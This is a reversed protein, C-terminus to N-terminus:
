HLVLIEGRLDFLSDCEEDWRCVNVMECHHPTLLLSLRPEARESLFTWVNPMFRLSFVPSSQLEASELSEDSGKQQKWIWSGPRSCRGGPDECSTWDFWRNFSDLIQINGRCLDANEKQRKLDSALILNRFQQHRFLLCSINWKKSSWRWRTGLALVM